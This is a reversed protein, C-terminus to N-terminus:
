RVRLGRDFMAELSEPTEEASQKRSLGELARDSLGWPEVAFYAMWGAPGFEALTMSGAVDLPSRGM